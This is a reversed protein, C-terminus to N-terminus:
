AVIGTNTMGTAYTDSVPQTSQDPNWRQWEGLRDLRYACNELPEIAVLTVWGNLFLTQLKGQSQIIMDICHRPAYVVTLLRQPEHYPTDDTRNVSQLPLGQMLDSANGQMVGLKGAVNHTIKSGSGYAVNDLTSFLYQSNIWQAVIMPATLITQLSSLDTDQEWNYSHLFCRGELDLDQTLWRPGVILAANRALGWEPRVEAWDSSRRLTERMPDRGDASPGFTQYRAASNAAQAAALDRKLRLLVPLHYRDADAAEYLTVADTTTNHEAAMFVTHIPIRIGNEALRARVQPTNLLTALIRANPGGHNGGCAGCDLASAYPNNQTAAGHGCFVVLKGFNRTLGMLRLATEAYTAQENLAIGHEPHAGEVDPETPLPPRVTENLMRRGNASVVPALTRGLMLLGCVAGLTEVLAFPTAFNYKLDEYFGKLLTMIRKGRQFRIVQGAHDAVPKEHIDHRPKLLVPCADHAKGTSFDHLRVPLGFFGAFGLTEYAGLAELRRRFPESRVDICFVLQADPRKTPRALHHASNMLTELLANRYTTEANELRAVTQSVTGQPRQSGLPKRGAEPWMVCTIALRVALFDALTAPNAVHSASQEQARWKIYGAWGPLYTLTQKLFSEHEAKPVNLRDLSLLLADEAKEPLAKLWAKAARNHQHLQDDFRALDKWARYFGKHRNPMTITAQGDDMFVMSWKIVQLNVAELEPSVPPQQFFRAGDALAEEFPLSELGQLPNCAIFTRLPWVPAILTAAKAVKSRIEARDVAVALPVTPQFTTQAQMIKANM